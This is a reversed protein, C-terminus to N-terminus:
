CYGCRLNVEDVIIGGSCLVVLYYNLVYYIIDLWKGLIIKEFSIKLIEYKNNLNKLLNDNIKM